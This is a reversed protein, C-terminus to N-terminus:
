GPERPVLAVVRVPGGSGGEIKMPLAFVLAGTSPLKDLNTLNELNSVNADAAIRHVVFNQSTGFDTSATDIGLIAVGREEVLLRAADEGYSPFILESVEGPTDDGLHSKADPWYRSWDTRLLVIAGPNIRGHQDEFARVDNASLLYNRDAATKETVDIVVAPAILKELPIKETPLGDAAFHLPADLHTGGHEPTCISFASYFEGSETEGYSIVTKEFRSPATPWYLTDSGYAHSLDVFHYESIDLPLTPLSFFMGIFTFAIRRIM